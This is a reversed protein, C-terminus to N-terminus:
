LQRNMSRYMGLLMKSISEYGAYMEEYDEEGVLKMDHMIDLIATCEFAAGRAIIYYHKKEDVSMRGTGEALNLVISMSTRKWKDIIYNDLNDAKGLFTLVKINQKKVIQYVELREFDFM